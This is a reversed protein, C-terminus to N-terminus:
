GPERLIWGKPFHDVESMYRDNKKLTYRIGQNPEDVELDWRVGDVDAFYRVQLDQTPKWQTTRPKIRHTYSNPEASRDVHRTRTPPRLCAPLM